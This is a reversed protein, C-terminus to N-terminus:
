RSEIKCDWPPFSQVGYVEAAKADDGVYSREVYFSLVEPGLLAVEVSMNIPVPGPTSAATARCAMALSANVEGGEFLDPRSKRNRALCADVDGKVPMTTAAPGFARVGVVKGHGPSDRSSVTAPLPIDGWPGAIKLSAPAATEIVVRHESKSAPRLNRGAPEAECRLAITEASAPAAAFLALALLHTRNM